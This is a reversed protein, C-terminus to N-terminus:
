PNLCAGVMQGIISEAIFRGQRSLRVRNDALEIFGQPILDPFLKELRPRLVPLSSLSVGRSLRLGTLLTEIQKNKESIEEADDPEWSDGSCKELWRRMNPAFQYRVGNMYSFAGPGIGLYNGNTWYILNHRSEFGPKAFTMLEYHLYGAKELVNEAGAFMEKHATEDPLSLRNQRRRLGYVTKEHIDLDYLVVQSVGAEVLRDLSFLIDGTTQNPIRLILDASINSFGHKQLLRLTTTAAAANHARGMDELLRDNFSQVGLSIRNIGLTKYAELKEPTADGPNIECTIEAGPAFDFTERLLKSLRGIEQEALLSPTGGGFYLTDFLIRGYRAAAQAAEKGIAQLFSHRTQPSNKTTIVFDCYHCKKLCFPIHVYLGPM